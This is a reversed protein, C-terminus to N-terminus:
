RGAMLEHGGGAVGGLERVQDIPVTLLDAGAGQVDRVRARRPVGDLLGASGEAPEVHEHVVGAIAVDARDLIRAEFVDAGRDLRVQEPAEFERVGGYWDRRSM